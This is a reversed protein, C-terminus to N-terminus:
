LSTEGDVFEPGVEPDATEIPCQNEPDQVVGINSRHWEM